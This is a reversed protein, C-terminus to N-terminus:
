FYIYDKYTSLDAAFIEILVRIIYSISGKVFM